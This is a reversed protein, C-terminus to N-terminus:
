LQARPSSAGVCSGRPPAAALLPQSGWPPAQLGHQRGPCGPGPGAALLCGQLANHHIRPGLRGLKSDSSRRLLPRAKYFTGDTEPSSPWRLLRRPDDTPSTWGGWAEEPETGWVLAGSPVAPGRCPLTRRLLVSLCSAPVGATGAGSGHPVGASVEQGSEHGQGSRRGTWWKCWWAGHLLGWRGGSLGAESGAGPSGRPLRAM